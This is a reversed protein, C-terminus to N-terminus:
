NLIYEFHNIKQIFDLIDNKTTQAHHWHQNLVTNHTNIIYSYYNTIDIPPNHINHEVNSLEWVPNVFPYDLPYGIAINICITESLFNCIINSLELPINKINYIHKKTYKITLKIRRENENKVRITLKYDDSKPIGWMDHLEKGQVSNFDNNLRILLISM